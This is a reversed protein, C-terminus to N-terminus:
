KKENKKNIKEVIETSIEKYGISNPYFNSPNSFYKYPNKELKESYIYIIDKNNKYLNNLKEIGKILYYNNTNPKYYGIIYIDKQYYKRIEKILQNLSINIEEIIRDLKYENIEETIALKYILDNIGISITLIESERLTRKINYNNEKKNILIDKYLSDISASKNTFTKNYFNLKDTEKLYDKLYDSYGYNTQYYSDIGKSYGDGLSTYSINNKNNIKYIKFVSIIVILLLILKKHKRIIYM